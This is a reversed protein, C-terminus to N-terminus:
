TSLASITLTSLSEQYFGTNGSRFHNGVFNYTKPGTVAFLSMGEGIFLSSYDNPRYEIFALRTRPAASGLAGAQSFNILDWELKATIKEKKISFGFRSQQTQIQNRSHNRSSNIQESLSDSNYFAETPGNINQNGASAIAKDSTIVSGKVFGYPNVEWSAFCISGLFMSLLVIIIRNM